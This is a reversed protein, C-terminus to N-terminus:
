INGGEHLDGGAAEELSEGRRGRGGSAGERELEGKWGILKEEEIEVAYMNLCALFHNVHAHMPM